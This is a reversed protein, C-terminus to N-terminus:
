RVHCAEKNGAGYVVGYERFLDGVAEEDGDAALQELQEKRIDTKM